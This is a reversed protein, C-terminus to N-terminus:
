RCVERFEKFTYDRRPYTTRKPRRLGRGRNCDFCAPVINSRIYRGGLYGPFIRDVTLNRFTLRKWCWVCRCSRGTGFATLLFLKRARRDYCNGRADGGCRM